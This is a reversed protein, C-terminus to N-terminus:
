SPNLKTLRDTVALVVLDVFLRFVGFCLVQKAACSIQLADLWQASALVPNLRPPCLRIFALLATATVIRSVAVCTCWAAFQAAFWSCRVDGQNVDDDVNGSEGAEDVHRYSGRRRPPSPRHGPSYRGTHTNCYMFQVWWRTWREHWPGRALRATAARVAEDREFDEGEGHGSGVRWRCWRSFSRALSIGLATGLTSEVLLAAPYWAIPDLPKQPVAQAAPPAMTYDTATIVESIGGANDAPIQAAVDTIANPTRALLAFLLLIAWAVSGGGLIRTVDFVFVKFRRQETGQSRELFYRLFYLFVTCVAVAAVMVLGATGAMPVCPPGGAHAPDVTWFHGHHHRTPGAAAPVSLANAGEDMNGFYQSIAVHIVFIFSVHV